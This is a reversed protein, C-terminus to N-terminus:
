PLIDLLEVEFILPSNAPINTLQYNGYCYYSPAYFVMKGGVKMKPLMIKWAPILEGLIEDYNDSSDFITDDLLRGTYKVKIRNTLLPYDGDGELEVVYRIESDEDIEAVIDNTELYSDILSLDLEFQAQVSDDPGYGDLSCSAFGILVSIASFFVVKKM